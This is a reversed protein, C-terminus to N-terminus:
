RPLRCSRRVRAGGVGKYSWILFYPIKTCSSRLGDSPLANAWGSPRLAGFIFIRGLLLRYAIPQRSTTVRGADGAVRWGGGTAVAESQAEIVVALQGDVPEE